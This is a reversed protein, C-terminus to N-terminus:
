PNYIDKYRFELIEQVMQAYQRAEAHSDDAQLVRNFDNLAEGWENRRYHWQGREVYLSADDPTAELRATLSAIYSAPSWLDKERIYQMVGEPLMNGVDEGRGLRERIESSSYPYLPAGELLTIRGGLDPLPQGTRPYVFIPYNDIIERYQKWEPLQPVLDDGMLIACIGRDSQAVLISGLSCEGVAFRITTQAGGARYRAIIGTRDISSSQGRRM